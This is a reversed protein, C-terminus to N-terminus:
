DALNSSVSFPVPHLTCKYLCFRVAVVPATDRSGNTDKNWNVAMYIRCGRLWTGASRLFVTDLYSSTSFTVQVTRPIGKERVGKNCQRSSQHSEGGEEGEGMINNQCRAKVIMLLKSIKKCQCLGLKHLYM